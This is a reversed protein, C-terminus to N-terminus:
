AISSVLFLTGRFRKPVLTEIVNLMSNGLPNLKSSYLRLYKKEVPKLGHRKLVQELTQEDFWCVHEPNVFRKGFLRTIFYIMGFSNPTTIILQSNARM